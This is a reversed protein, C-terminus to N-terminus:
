AHQARLVALVRDPNRFVHRCVRRPGPSRRRGTKKNKKKKKKKKKEPYDYGMMPCVILIVATNAGPSNTTAVTSFLFNGSL